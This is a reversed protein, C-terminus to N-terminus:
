FPTIVQFVPIKLTKLLSYHGSIRPNQPNKFPLLSRFYPSKVSLSVKNQRIRYYKKIAIRLKSAAILAARLFVKRFIKLFKWSVM